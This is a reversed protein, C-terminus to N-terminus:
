DAALIIKRRSPAFPKHLKSTSSTLAYCLSKPTTRKEKHTTQENHFPM